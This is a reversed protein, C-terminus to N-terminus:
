LRNSTITSHSVSHLEFNNNVGNCDSPQVEAKAMKQLKKHFARSMTGAGPIEDYMPEYPIDSASPRRYTQALNGMEQRQMGFVKDDLNRDQVKSIFDLMAPKTNGMKRVPERAQDNPGNNGRQRLVNPTFASLEGSHIEQKTRALINAAARKFNQDTFTQRLRDARQSNGINRTDRLSRGIMFNQTNRLDEAVGLMATNKIKAMLQDTRQENRLNDEEEDSPYDPMPEGVIEECLRIIDKAKRANNKSSLARENLNKSCPNPIETIAILHMFTGWRHVLMGIFQILLIIVFFMVFMLGLADIKINNENGEDL